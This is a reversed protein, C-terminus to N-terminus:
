GNAPWAAADIEATTTISGGDIATCVASETAFAAAIHARAAMIVAGLDANSLDIFGDALKWPSPDTRLGAGMAVFEAIMKAQSDRDTNVVHTTWACGGTEVAYRKQAAYAKLQDAPSLIGLLAKIADLTPQGGLADVWYDGVVYRVADPHQDIAPFSPEATYVCRIDTM